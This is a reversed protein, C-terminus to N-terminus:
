EIVMDASEFLKDFLKQYKSIFVDLEPQRLTIIYPTAEGSEEDPSTMGCEFYRTNKQGVIFYANGEKRLTLHICFQGWSMHGCWYNCEVKEWRYEAGGIYYINHQEDGGKWEVAHLDNECFDKFVEAFTKTDIKQWLEMLKEHTQTV